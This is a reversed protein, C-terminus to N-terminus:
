EPDAVITECGFGIDISSGEQGQVWDCTQPCLIIM